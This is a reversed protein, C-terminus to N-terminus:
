RQEGHDTAGEQMTLAALTWRDIMGGSPAGDFLPEIRAAIQEPTDGTMAAIQEPSFYEDEEFEEGLVFRIWNVAGDYPLGHAKADAMLALLREFSVGYPRYRQAIRELESQARM